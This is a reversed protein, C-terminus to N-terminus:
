AGIGDKRFVMSRRKKKYLFLEGPIEFRHRMCQRLSLAPLSFMNKSVTIRRKGYKQASWSRVKQIDFFRPTFHFEKFWRWRPFAAKRCADWAPIKKTGNPHRSINTWVSWSCRFMEEWESRFFAQNGVDKKAGVGIFGNVFAFITIGGLLCCANLSILAAERQAAIALNSTRIWAIVALM